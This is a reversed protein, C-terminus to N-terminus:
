FIFLNIFRNINEIEAKDNQTLETKWPTQGDWSLHWSYQYNNIIHIIIKKLYRYHHRRKQEQCDNNHEM